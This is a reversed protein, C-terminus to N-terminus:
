GLHPGDLWEAPCGVLRAADAVWHMHKVSNSDAYAYQRWLPFSVMLSQYPLLSQTPVADVGRNSWDEWRTRPM